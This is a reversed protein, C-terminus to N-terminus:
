LGFSIAGYEDGAYESADDRLGMVMKRYHRVWYCTIIVTFPCAAHSSM